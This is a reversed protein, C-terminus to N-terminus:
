MSMQRYVTSATYVHCIVADIRSGGGGSVTVAICKGVYSGVRSVALLALLLGLVAM